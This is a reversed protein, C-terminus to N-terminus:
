LGFASNGPGRLRCGLRPPVSRPGNGINETIHILIEDHALLQYLLTREDRIPVLDQGAHSRVRGPDLHRRERVEGEIAHRSEITAPRRPRFPNDRTAPPVFEQRYAIELRGPADTAEWSTAAKEPRASRGGRGTRRM